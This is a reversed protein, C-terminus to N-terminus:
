PQGLQGLPFLGLLYYNGATVPPNVLFPPIAIGPVVGFTTGDLHVIIAVAAPRTPSRLLEPRGHSDLVQLGTAPDFQRLFSGGVPAVQPGAPFDACCTPQAASSGAPAQTQQTLTMGNVLPVQGAVLPNFDLWALLHSNGNPRIRFQNPERGLGESFAAHTNAVPSNMLAIPPQGPGIPEFIPDPAPQGPPFHVFWATVVQGPALGSLRISLAARNNSTTLIRLTGAPNPAVLAPDVGVPVPCPPAQGANPPFCVMQVQENVVITGASAPLALVACLLVLALPALYAALRVHICDERHM